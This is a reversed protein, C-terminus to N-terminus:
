RIRERTTDASVLRMRGGRYEHRQHISVSVDRSSLASSYEWSEGQTPVWRGGRWCWEMYSHTGAGMKWSSRTCSTGAVHRINGGESLVTDKEFRGRRPDYRFVDFMRGGSGFFTMVRVDTWGDGNLDEGELITGGAYPPEAEGPEEGISLTDSASVATPPDHVLVRAPIGYTDAQLVLRAPHGDRLACLFAM